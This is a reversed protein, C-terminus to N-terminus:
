KDESEIKVFKFLENYCENCVDCSCTVETVLSGRGNIKNMRIHTFSSLDTSYKGCRECLVAMTMM